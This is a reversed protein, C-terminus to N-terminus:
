RSKMTFYKLKEEPYLLSYGTDAMPITKILNRQIIYMDKYKGREIVEFWNLSTYMNFLREATDVGAAPTNIVKFMETLMHTPTLAGYETFLRNAQYAIMNLGWNDDDDDRINSLISILIGLTAMFIADALVRKMSSKEVSSLSHWSKSMSYQSSRIDKVLDSLFKGFVRYYGETEM